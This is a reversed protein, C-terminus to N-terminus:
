AALAAPASRRSLLMGLCLWFLVHPYAFYRMDIALANVIYAAAGALAYADTDRLPAEAALVNRVGRTLAFVVPGIYLLGGILGTAVLMTMFSDHSVWDGYGTTSDFRVVTLPGWGFVPRQLFLQWSLLSTEVRGIANTDQHLRPDDSLSDILNPGVMVVLVIMVILAAAVGPRKRASVVGLVALGVLVSLWAARTFTLLIVGGMLVCGCAAVVRWRLSSTALQYLSLFLLTSLAAGLVPPSELTGAIRNGWATADVGFDLGFLPALLAVVAVGAGIVVSSRMVHQRATASGLCGAAVLFLIFAALYHRIFTLQAQRYDPSEFAAMMLYDIGFLLPWIWLSRTGPLSRKLTFIAVLVLVLREVTMDFVGGPLSVGPAWAFLGGAILWVVIWHGPRLRSGLAAAPIALALAVPVPNGVAVAWGGGAAGLLTAPVAGAHMARRLGGGGLWQQVRM